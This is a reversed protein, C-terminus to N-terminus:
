GVPRSQRSTFHLRAALDDFRTAGIQSMNAVIDARLIHLLHDVGPAGLAALAFHFAKGLFVMDAGRAIARLIDLGGEVGSDYILPMDPGVAARILPLQDIAAPGAEFQRGAHNSVWIADVGMAVMGTADEARLVGKVVLDGDWEDRLAQLYQWDPWGRIVRGAHVFADRGSAEVYSEPFPMRPAGVRAMELAWRPHTAVQWAVKATMKPPMAVHARRQRERRSEGPVDVTMILKKFGADKIRKLMDRRIEPTNVPYHQFWGNGGIHDAVDEPAAAAVTSQCYPINATRAAKALTVEAGPWIMGSMGVPSIGVPLDFTQGMFDRTLDPTILGHLVQPMFLIDDLAARNRAVGLERGTGSDLYEFAFQPIRRRAARRLDSMAPHTLDFDNSM